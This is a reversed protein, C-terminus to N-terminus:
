IILRFRYITIENRLMLIEKSDNYKLTLEMRIKLNELTDYKIKQLYNDM